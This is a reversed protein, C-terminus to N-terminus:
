EIMVLVLNDFCKSLPEEIHLNEIFTQSQTVGISLSYVIMM